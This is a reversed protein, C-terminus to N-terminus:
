RYYTNIVHHPERQNEPPLKMYNGFELTLIEDYMEPIYFETDEFKHLKRTRFLSRRYVADQGAFCFVFESDDDRYKEILRELKNVMAKPNIISAMWIILNKKFSFRNSTNMSSALLIKKYWFAKKLVMNTRLASTPLSDLPWVDIFVGIPDDTKYEPEMLITRTDFVKTMNRGYYTSTKHNAIELGLSDKCNSFLSLFKEYDTRM